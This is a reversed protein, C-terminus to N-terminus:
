ANTIGYEEINMKRIQTKVYKQDEMLKKTEMRIRDRLDLIRVLQANKIIKAWWDYDNSKKKIDIWM